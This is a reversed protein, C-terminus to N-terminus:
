AARETPIRDSVIHSQETAHGAIEPQSWQISVTPQETAHRTIKTYNRETAVSSQETAHGTIEAHICKTSVTVHEAATGERAFDDETDNSSRGIYCAVHHQFAGSIGMDTASV